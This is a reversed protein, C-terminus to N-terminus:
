FYTLLIGCYCESLFELPFTSSAVARSVKCDSPYLGSNGSVWLFADALPGLDFLPEFVGDFPGDLDVEGPLLLGVERVVDGLWLLDGDRAVDGAFGFSVSM